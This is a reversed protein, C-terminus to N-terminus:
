VCINRINKTLRLVVREGECEGATISLGRRINQLSLIDLLHELEEPRKWFSALWDFGRGPPRIRGM